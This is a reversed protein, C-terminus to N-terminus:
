KWNPPCVLQTGDGLNIINDMRSSQLQYEKMKYHFDANKKFDESARGIPIVVGLQKTPFTARVTKVAPLLDTDGSIIVAKDYRDLVALQFLHLAINVDTQKEEVTWFNKHCLNCHKQKRKFEGYVVQVGEIEQAKIFTKHRAVKGADWTALTTFYYIGTVTDLRNTVYCRALRSLSVWKYKHYKPHDDLAHYLNFGDIFFCIRSM